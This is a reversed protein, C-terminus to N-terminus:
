LQLDEQPEDSDRRAGELVEEQGLARSSTVTLRLKREDRRVSTRSSGHCAAIVDRQLTKGEKRQESDGLTERRDIM